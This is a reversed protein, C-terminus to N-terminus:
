PGVRQLAKRADALVAESKSSKLVQGMVQVVDQKFKTDLKAAIRVAAAGTEEVLAPDNLSQAVQRLSEASVIEGYAAIVFKKDAANTAYMMADGFIKLKTAEPAESERGLRVYGRFALVRLTPQDTARLIALLDPAAGADSWDALARLAAEKVQPDTARSETRVAELAKSGGATGLLRLLESRSAPKSERLGAILGDAAKERVRGAISELASAAAAREAARPSSILVPVLSGIQQEDGLLGVAVLAAARVKENPDAVFRAVAPATTRASRAALSRLLEVRVPVEAQAAAALIAEDVGPGRLGILSVRAAGNEVGQGAAAARALLGVDEASGIASMTELGALRVRENPSALMALVAARASTDKHERVTELLAIQGEVPLKPLAELIAQPLRPGPLDGVLRAAANCLYADAGGLAELILKEAASPRAAVLGQLGAVRLSKNRAEGLFCDYIRAAAAREGQKLLTQAAQLCADNVTSQMAAGAVVRLEGLAQVAAPTPVKGLALAASAVVEPDSDKLATILLPVAQADGRAGLSNIIGAKLQGAAKPLAERLVQSASADPNRELAYRAMHSLDPDLLLAGLVPVSAAAGVLSLNRCALDKAARTGQGQLLAVLRKELDLRLSADHHARAVAANVVALPAQDQGWEWKPLSSFAQDLAASGPANPVAAAHGLYIRLVLGLTVFVWRKKANFMLRPRMSTDEYEM